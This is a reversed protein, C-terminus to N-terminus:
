AVPSLHDLEGDSAYSHLESIAGDVRGSPQGEYAAEWSSRTAALARAYCDREVGHVQCLVARGAASWAVPFDVGMARAQSLLRRLMALRPDAPPATEEAM